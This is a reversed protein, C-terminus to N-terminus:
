WPTHEFDEVDQATHGDACPVCTGLSRPICYGVDIRCAPCTRRALMAAALARERAPTMPRVPRALAVDFLYAVRLGGWWRIEAVVPQGGPRFAPPNASDRVGFVL